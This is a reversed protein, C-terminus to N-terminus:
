RVTFERIIVADQDTPVFCEAKYTGPADVTFDFSIDGPFPTLKPSGGPYSAVTTDGIAKVLSSGKRLECHIPVDVPLNQQYSLSATLPKGVHMDGSVKLSQLVERSHPTSDSFAVGCGALLLSALSLALIAALVRM